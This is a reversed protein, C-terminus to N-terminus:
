QRMLKLKAVMDQFMLRVDLRTYVRIPRGAPNYRYTGDAAILPAQRMVYTSSAPDPEFGSQLATLLVLPSDGLIYIEGMPYNRDKMGKMLSVLADTLYKGTEGAPAVDTLLEAMSYICQRYANRPVQWIPIDSLNFIAQAAPVCLSLNYEPVSYGPPPIALGEYEQGGIWVLTLRNAIEPRLLYASAINTLGAGCVVYLPQRTDTRMAEEIILRAGESDKPATLTDMGVPSGECVKYRGSLGMVELVANVRECALAATNGTNGFGADPTLHSGIIGRIDVSPSLLHHVLQFLGDPDGSFDNDIIVRMRNGVFDNMPSPGKTQAGACLCLLCLWGAIFYRRTRM